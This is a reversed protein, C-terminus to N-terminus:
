PQAGGGDRSPGRWAPPTTAPSSAKLPDGASEWGVEFAAGDGNLSAVCVGPVGGDGLEELTGCIDDQDIGWSEM